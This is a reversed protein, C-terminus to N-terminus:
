SSSSSLFFRTIGTRAPKEILLYSLFSLLITSFFCTFVSATLGLSSEHKAFAPVTILQILYLSFSAEGLFVLFRMSFIRALFSENQQTFYFYLLLLWPFFFLDRSIFTMTNTFIVLVFSVLTSILLLLGSVSRVSERISLEGAFMGALFEPLRFIPFSYFLAFITDNVPRISDGFLSFYVSALVCVIIGRRLAKDSMTRSFDLIFPFLTYFFVEVSLSWTGSRINGDMFLQPFWANTLTLDAVVRCIGSVAPITGLDPALGSIFYSALLIVFYVPYIRAFRRLYYSGIKSSPTSGVSARVLIFGSLSFFFSMGLAGANLFRDVVLYDVPGAWRYLHFTFVWLAAFFRLTTLPHITKPRNDRISQSLHVPDRSELDMTVVSVLCTTSSSSALSEATPSFEDETLMSSSDEDVIIRDSSSKIHSKFKTPYSSQSRGPDVGTVAIGDNSVVESDRCGTKRRNLDCVTLSESEGSGGRGEMCDLLFPNCSHFAFVLYLTHGWIVSLSTCGMGEAVVGGGFVPLPPFFNKKQCPQYPDSRCIVMRHLSFIMKGCM